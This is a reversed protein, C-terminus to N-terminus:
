TIFDREIRGRMFRRGSGDRVQAIVSDSLSLLQSEARGIIGTGMLNPGRLTGDYGGAGVHPAREACWLLLLMM